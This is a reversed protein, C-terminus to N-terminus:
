GLLLFPYPLSGGCLGVLLGWLGQQSHKMLLSIGDLAGLM